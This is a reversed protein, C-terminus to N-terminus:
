ARGGDIRRHVAQLSTEVRGVACAVQEQHFGMGVLKDRIERLVDRLERVAEALHDLEASANLPCIITAEDIRSPRRLKLVAILGGLVAFCFSSAAIALPYTVPVEGSRRWRRM